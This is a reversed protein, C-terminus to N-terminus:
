SDWRKAVPHLALEAAGWLLGTATYPHRVGRRSFWGATADDLKQGAVLGGVLLGLGGVVMGATMWPRSEESEQSTEAGAEADLRSETGGRRQTDISEHETMWRAAVVVTGVTLASRLVRRRAPSEVYDPLATWVSSMAAFLAVMPADLDQALPAADAHDTM